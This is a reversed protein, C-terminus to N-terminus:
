LVLGRSHAGSLSAACMPALWRQPWLTRRAAALPATSCCVLAYACPRRRCSAASMPPGEKTCATSCTHAQRSGLHLTHVLVHNVQVSGENGGMGPAALVCAGRARCEQARAQGVHMAPVAVGVRGSFRGESSHPWIGGGGGLPRERGEEGVLGKGVQAVLRAYKTPLELAEHLAGRAEEMGGVDQWGAVGAQVAKKTGTGWFAAPTLGELAAEMDGRTLQLLPASTGSSSSRSGAGSGSISGSSGNAPQGSRSAVLQLSGSGSALGGGTSLQRRVAIHLARDLLVELDAADFGDAKEAVYRLHQPALQVGRAVVAASLIAARSEATPAPLTVPHDLRGAARLSAALTAADRCTAAVALPPWLAPGM